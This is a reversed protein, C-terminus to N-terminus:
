ARTVRPLPVNVRLDSIRRPPRRTVRPGVSFSVESRRSGEPAIEPARPLAASVARASDYFRMFGAANWAPAQAAAVVLESQSSTQARLPLAGLLSAALALSFM